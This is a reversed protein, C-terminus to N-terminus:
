LLGAIELSAEFPTRRSTTSGAKPSAARNRAMSRPQSGLLSGVLRDNHIGLSTNCLFPVHIFAGAKFHLAFILGDDCQHGDLVFGKDSEQYPFDQSFGEGYLVGDRSMLSFRLESFFSSCSGSNGVMQGVWATEVVPYLTLRRFRAITEERRASLQSM